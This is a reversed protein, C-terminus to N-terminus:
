RRGGAYLLRSMSWQMREHLRFLSLWQGYTKEDLVARWTKRRGLPDQLALVERLGDWRKSAYSSLLTWALM